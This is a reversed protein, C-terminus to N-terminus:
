YPSGLNIVTGPAVINTHGDLVLTLGKNKGVTSKPEKNDQYWKPPKKEGFSLSLDNEQMTKVM